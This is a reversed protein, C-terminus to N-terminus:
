SSSETGAKEIPLPEKFTLTRYPFPIEIGAEDLAKKIATVVEGQSRRAERPDSETWWSVDIDISSSGFASPFIDVAQEKDVSSVTRMAKGIVDVATAVDEDYAIGTTLHIRRKPRSTVVEVVNKFLYSNPSVQLEGTPRRITTNRLEVREVRGEVDGCTIFDGEEFPFRWLLLIGAFFNEFIDKFAFGVAISLLGLAGLAKAPTLGPFVIMAALMLGITWVLLYAFRELLQKLSDRMKNRGRLARTLSGRVISAIIWTVLIAVLGTAIYPLHSVFERWVGGLTDTLIDQVEALSNDEPKPAPSDASPEAAEPQATNSNSQALIM